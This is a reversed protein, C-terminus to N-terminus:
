FIFAGIGVGIEFTNRDTTDNDSYDDTLWSYSLYPELAVNKSIFVDMGGGLTWQTGKYEFDSDSFTSKAVAYSANIFPHVEEFPLYYRVTPGVGINTTVNDGSSMRLYLFQGGIAFQNLIFYYGQPMIALTNLNNDASESSESSFAIQGGLSITGQNIPSQGFVNLGFVVMMVFFGIRKM